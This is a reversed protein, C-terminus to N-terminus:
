NQTKMQHYVRLLKSLQEDLTTVPKWDLTETAKSSDLQLSGFLRTAIAQKGILRAVFMMWSVPVPLLIAKKGLAKAIKRALQTTSIDEGDTILFLDNAAKSHNICHCIFSVLNDLAVLSRKNNIAGLPLPLGKDLWRIMSLFNAKVGPGYVLPPRIIVIQLASSRAISLLGQEAEYKSLAYPETPTSAIDCTFPTDPLTAEGNVKISSIFIFRRVGAEAAQLALNITATTNIKRYEALPNSASEDMIHARAALHILTDVTNLDSIELLPNALDGTEIQRVSTPLQPSFRRVAAIVTYNKALLEAILAQGIFGTAGTLMIKQM